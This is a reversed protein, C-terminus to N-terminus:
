TLRRLKKLRHTLIGTERNIIGTPDLKDIRVWGSCHIIEESSIVIGVHHINDTENVFFALDGPLTEHINRVETGSEAQQPTDRPLSYGHIKYVVQVFGSCDFGFISRGGWLYPSNLFGLATQIIQISPALVIDGFVPRIIHKMDGMVLNRTSPDYGPLSCGAPILMASSDPLELEAIRAALIVPRSSKIQEYDDRSIERSIKRNIWGPYHDFSTTIRLWRERVEEVCYIEGFLLQSVMESQELPERRMPIVSQMAIGYQPTRHLNNGTIKNKEM